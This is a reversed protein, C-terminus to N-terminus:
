EWFSLCLSLVLTRLYWLWSHYLLPWLVQVSALDGQGVRVQYDSMTVRSKAKDVVRRGPSGCRRITVALLMLNTVKFKIQHRLVHLIVKFM